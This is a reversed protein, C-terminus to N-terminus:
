SVEVLDKTFGTLNEIGEKTVVVDDEIRIGFKGDLYIGPEVTVVNGPELVDSSETSLTDTATRTSRVLPSNPPKANRDRSRPANPEHLVGQAKEGYQETAAAGAAVLFAEQRRV